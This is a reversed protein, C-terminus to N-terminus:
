AASPVTRPTTPYTCALAEPLDAEGIFGADLAASRNRFYNAMASKKVNYQRAVAYAIQNFVAVITILIQGGRPDDM